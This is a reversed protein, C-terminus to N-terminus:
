DALNNSKKAERQWKERWSKISGDNIKYRIVMDLDFAKNCGRKNGYPKNDPDSQWDKWANMAQNKGSKEARAEGSAKGLRKGTSKAVRQSKIESAYKWFMRSFTHLKNSNDIPWEQLIAKISGDREKRSPSNSAILEALKEIQIRSKKKTSSLV